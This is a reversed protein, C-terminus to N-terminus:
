SSFPLIDVAHSTVHHENQLRASRAPVIQARSRVTRSGPRCLCKLAEPMLDRSEAITLDVEQQYFRM